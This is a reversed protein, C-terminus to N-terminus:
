WAASSDELGHQMFVVPGSGVIRLFLISCYTKGPFFVLLIYKHLFFTIAIVIMVRGLRYLTLIYGDSVVKHTEAEYGAMTIM